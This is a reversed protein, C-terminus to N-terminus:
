TVGYNYKTNKLSQFVRAACTIVDAFPTFDVEAIQNYLLLKNLQLAALYLVPFQM